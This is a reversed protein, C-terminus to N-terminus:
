VASPLNGNRLRGGGGVAASPPASICTKRRGPLTAMEGPLATAESKSKTAPAPAPAAAISLAAASIYGVIVPYSLFNAIFGMRTFGFLAQILGVMLTLLIALELYHVSGPEAFASLGTIILISDLAVPGISIKNSTGLLAYIVPPIVTAYLGYEAPLGAVMAYAMGQPILLFAITLGSVLDSILHSRNYNDLWRLGPLIKKALEM